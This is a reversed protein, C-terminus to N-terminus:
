SLLVREGTAPEEVPIMARKIAFILTFPGIRGLIMSIMIIIKGILSLHPTVNMTIGLTAFASVSEFLINMFSFSPETILLCFTTFLIWPISLSIIAIAKRIQNRKIRKGMLTVHPQDFIVAKVTALFLAVTTTKVGSGTSGPSTGIFAIIMMILLTALHFQNVSVTYFGTGMLGTSNFLANLFSISPHIDVLTNNTELLWFLGVACVVLITTTLWIIKSGLSFHYKKKGFFAPINKVVERLTIFGIGGALMLITLIILILPNHFYLTMNKDFPSFGANAFAAIAHFFSLFLAKMPAFDKRFSIFLLLAGITEIVITLLIVFSIIIKMNKHRDIKLVQATALETAMDPEFFLYLFIITLTILGLAGIQVFIILIIQGFLTLNSLPITLLGTGTIASIATFLVDIFSMPKIQAIPLSLLICGTSIALFSSFLILRNPTLKIM